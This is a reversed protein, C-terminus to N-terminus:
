YVIDFIALLDFMDLDGDHDTDGSLLEYQSPPTGRKLVIDAARNLDNIDITGGGDLDGINVFYFQGSVLEPVVLNSSADSITVTAMDLASFTSLTAGGAVDYSIQMIPGSGQSIVGGSMHVLFITVSTGNDSKVVTFGSARGVAVVNAATLFNPNDMMKLSVGRINTMNDMWINVVNGTSGPQGSSNPVRLTVLASIAFVADSVDDPLGDLSDQVRILAESTIPAPVTWVFSGDNPTSAVIQTWSSGNDISYSIRVFPIGSSAYWRIELSTNIVWNEGGNPSIVRIDETEPAIEFIADSVDGPVGDAADKVRVKCLTSMTGPLHWSYSGTNATSAVITSWSSGSDLSLEIAINGTFDLSSWTINHTSNALWIEGGNPSTLLVSQARLTFDDINNNSNGFLIVGGYYPTPVAPRSPRTDKVTNDLVGNLYYDFYYTTADSRFVVRATNGPAPNPKTPAVTNIPVTTDVVGNVVPYLDISAYRRRVFYGNATVSASNLLMAFGGSNVGEVTGGPAWKFAVDFPNALANYIAIYTWGTSTATNDLTNSVIQYEPDATWNPGLSARNFDDVIQASGRTMLVVTILFILITSTRKFSM